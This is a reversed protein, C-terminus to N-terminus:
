HVNKLMLDNEVLLLLSPNEFSDYNSYFVQIKEINYEVLNAQFKQFVTFIYKDIFQKFAIEKKKKRVLNLIKIIQFLIEIFDKFTAKKHPCFQSFLIEIRNQDIEEFKEFIKFDRYFTIM